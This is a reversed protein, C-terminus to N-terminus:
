ENGPVDDFHGVTDGKIIWARLEMFMLHIEKETAEIMDDLQKQEVANM